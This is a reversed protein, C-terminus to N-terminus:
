LMDNVSLIAGIIGVIIGLTYGIAMERTWCLFAESVLSVKGKKSIDYRVEIVDGINHTRKKLEAEEIYEQGNVFYSVKYKYFQRYRPSGISHSGTALKIEGMDEIITAKTIMAERYVKSYGIYSVLFMVYILLIFLVVIGIVIYGVINM